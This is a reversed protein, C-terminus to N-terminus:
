QRKYCCPGPSLGGDPSESAQHDGTDRRQMETRREPKLVDEWSEWGRATFMGYSPSLASMKTSRELLSLSLDEGDGRLPNGRRAAPLNHLVGIGLDTM